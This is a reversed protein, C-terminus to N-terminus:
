RPPRRTDRERDVRRSGPARGADEKGSETSASVEDETLESESGQGWEGGSRSSPRRGGHGSAPIRHGGRRGRLERQPGWGGGRYVAYSGWNQRGGRVQLDPWTSYTALM